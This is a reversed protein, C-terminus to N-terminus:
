LPLTFDNADGRGQWSGPHCTARPSRAIRRARATRSPCRSARLAACLPGRAADPGSSGPRCDGCTYFDVAAYGSEPWTHLSFHSEEIVVVGTVGQPRLSSLRRRRGSSGGSGGRAADVGCRRRTTSCHAIAVTSSWSCTDPLRIWDDEPTITSTAFDPKTVALTPGACRRSSGNSRRAREDRGQLRLAGGFRRRRAASRQSSAPQEGRVLMREGVGRQAMEIRRFVADRSWFGLVELFVRTGSPRHSSCWTPCACASGPCISCRKPRADGSWASGLATFAEVLAPRRGAAAVARTGAPPM